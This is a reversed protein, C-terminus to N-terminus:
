VRANGPQCQTATHSPQASPESQRNVTQQGRIDDGGIASGAFYVGIGLRVQEPSYSTTAAIETDYGSERELHM